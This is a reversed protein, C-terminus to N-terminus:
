FRINIDRLRDDATGDAATPFLGDLAPDDEVGVLSTLTGSFEM